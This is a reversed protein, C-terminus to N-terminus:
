GRSFSDDARGGRRLARRMVAQINLDLRGAEIRSFDLIDNLLMLSPMAAAAPKLYDLQEMSMSETELLEIMGIMGNLPTRIEHSMNALFMGKAESAMQARKVTSCIM